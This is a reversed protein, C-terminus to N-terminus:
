FVEINSESICQEAFEDWHKSAEEKEMGKTIDKKLDNVILSKILSEKNKELYEEFTMELGELYPDILNKYDSDNEEYGERIESAYREVEEIHDSYGKEEAKQVLVVNKIISNLIEEESYNDGVLNHSLVAAELSYKTIVEGNVVAVKYEDKFSKSNMKGMLKKHRKGVEKMNFGKNDLEKNNGASVIVASIIVILLIVLICISKRKM